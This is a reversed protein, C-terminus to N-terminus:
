NKKNELLISFSKLLREFTQKVFTQFLFIHNSWFRQRELSIMMSNAKKDSSVIWPYYIPEFCPTIKSNLIDLFDEFKNQLNQYWKCNSGKFLTQLLFLTCWSSRSLSVFIKTTDISKSLIIKYWCVKRVRKNIKM